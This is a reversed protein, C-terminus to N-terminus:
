ASLIVLGAEVGLVKWPRGLHSDLIHLMVGRFVAEEQLGPMTLEFLVFEITGKSFHGVFFALDILGLVIGITLGLSLGVVIAQRSAPLIFGCDKYAFGAVRTWLLALAFGALKQLWNFQLTAFWGLSPAFLTAAELIAFAFTLAAAKFMKSSRYIAGSVFVPAL